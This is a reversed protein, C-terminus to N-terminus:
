GHLAVEIMGDFAAKVTEASEIVQRYAMSGRKLERDWIPIIIAEADPDALTVELYVGACYSGGRYRNARAVKGPNKLVEGLLQMGQTEGAAPGSTGECELEKVVCGKLDAMAYVTADPTGLKRLSWTREADNAMVEPIGFPASPLLITREGSNNSTETM